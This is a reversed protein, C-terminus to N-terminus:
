AAVGGGDVNGWRSVRCRDRVSQVSARSTTRRQVRLDISTSGTYCESAISGIAIDVGIVYM